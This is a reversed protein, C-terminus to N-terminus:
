NNHDNDPTNSLVFKAFCVGCPSSLFGMQLDDDRYKCFRAKWRESFGSARRIHCFFPTDKTLEVDRNSVNKPAPLHVIDGELAQLLDM